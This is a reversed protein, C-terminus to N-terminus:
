FFTLEMANPGKAEGKSCLPNAMIGRTELAWSASAVYFVQLDTSTFCADSVSHVKPRMQSTRAQPLDSTLAHEMEEGKEPKAPRQLQDQFTFNTLASKLELDFDPPRLSGGKVLPTFCQVRGDPPLLSELFGWM